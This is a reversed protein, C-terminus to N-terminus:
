LERGTVAPQEVGALSGEFQLMSVWQPNVRSENCVCVCVFLICVCVTGLASMMFCGFSTHFTGM